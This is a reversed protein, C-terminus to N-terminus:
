RCLEALAVALNPGVGHDEHKFYVFADRGDEQLRKSWASLEENSYVTKRLRWYSWTSTEPAHPREDDTEVGVWAVDHARMLRYIAETRWSPHQPEFAIRKGVPVASLFDGLAREDMSFFEPLQVLLPGLKDGLPASAAFFGGLAERANSLKLSLTIYRNLKLSFRFDGPVSAAWEAFTAPKPLKYFTANIEVTGLRTAYHALMKKPSIKSPYFPGKWAAYSFGSTGTRVIM